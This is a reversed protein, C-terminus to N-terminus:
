TGDGSLVWERYRSLHDYDEPDEEKEVAYRPLYPTSPAAYAGLLRKLGALHRAAAAMPEIKSLRKVEGPPEGGTIRVYVLESTDCAEIGAFGGAALIAAELTLQPALGADVQTTSPPQGTKFDLIRATGDGLLDIRDARATLTFTRGAVPISLAGSTEAHSQRLNRRLEHEQAAIWRAIRRFRPWWFGAILPDGVYPDFHRRAQAILIDAADAPLAEPWQRFADGLSAHFLIGRLRSDAQVDIEDLPQLRLVERAYVAYPDRILTEVRTVSLRAPRAAVPPRPAPRAIRITERPADLARAWRRWDQQAKAALDVGAAAAVVQLRLIWRSPIAPENDIRRSWTLFARPAALTQAFDHAMQGIAREPQQLGLIDRMPRNLWPGPDPQRPWIGENLGGLIVSDPAMLRAELLGLIALRSSAVSPKRYSAAFLQRRIVIAAAALSCPPLRHQETLLEGILADLEESGPGTLLKGGATRQAAAMFAGVWAGFPRTGTIPADLADQVARALRLM